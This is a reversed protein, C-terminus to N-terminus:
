FEKGRSLCTFLFSSADSFDTFDKCLSILLVHSMLGSPGLAICSVVIFM